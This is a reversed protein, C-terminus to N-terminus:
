LRLSPTWIRKEKTHHFIHKNLLVETYTEKNTQYNCQDNNNNNIVKKM